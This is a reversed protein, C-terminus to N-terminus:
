NSFMQMNKYEEMVPMGVTLRKIDSHYANRGDIRDYEESVVVINDAIEM